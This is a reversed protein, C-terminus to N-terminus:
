INFYNYSQTPANPLFESPIGTPPTPTNAAPKDFVGEGALGAMAATGFQLMASMNASDIIQNPDPANNIGPIFQANESMYGDLSKLKALTQTQLTRDSYRKQAVGNAIADRFNNASMRQIAKATGSTVSLNKSGMVTKQASNIKANQMSMNEMSERFNRDAVYQTAGMQSGLSKATERNSVLRNNNARNIQSNKADVQLTRAFENHYFEQHKAMAQAAQAGGGMLSQVGGLVANGIMMMTMPEM